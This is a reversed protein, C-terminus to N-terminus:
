KTTQSKRECNCISIKGNCTRMKCPRFSNRILRTRNHFSDCHFDWSTVTLTYISTHLSPSSDKQKRATTTTVYSFSARLIAAYLSHAFALSLRRYIYDTLSHRFNIKLVYLDSRTSLVETRFIGM